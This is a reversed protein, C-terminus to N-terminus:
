SRDIKIWFSDETMRGATKEIILLPDYFPLNLERLRLKMKDGERPFCRSELFAEYEQFSPYEKVGFARFQPYETYNRIRVQRKPENVDILTCLTEHFMYYLRLPWKKEPITFREPLEPHERLIRILTVIPGTIEQSSGEWREITKRSVGCFASFEAQTMSLQNRFLQIEKGSISDPIAYRISAM